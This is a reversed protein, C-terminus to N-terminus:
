ATPLKGIEHHFLLDLEHFNMNTVDVDGIKVLEWGVKIGIQKGHGEKESVVKIPVKAHSSLGLPKKTATVEHRAGTADKWTLTVGTAKKPPPAADRWLSTASATPDPMDEGNPGPLAGVENHLVHDVTDFSWKTIDVHNIAVLTWGVQIGIDKGHGDKEGTIKIPLENKYFQLGLPRETAYVTSLGSGTDFTLPLGEPETPAVQTPPALGMSKVGTSQLGVSADPQQPPPLALVHHHVQGAKPKIPQPAPAPATSEHWTSKKKAARRAATVIAPAASGPQLPQYPFSEGKKKNLMYIVGALCCLLLLFLLWMPFGAPTNISLVVECTTLGKAATATVVYKEDGIKHKKNLTGSIVGTKANIALAKPLDPKISFGSSTIKPKINVKDGPAINAEQYCGTTLTFKSETKGVGNKAVITYDHAGMTADKALVGQVECNTTDLKLGNPLAPDVTCSTPHEGALTPSLNVKKGPPFVVGATAYTLMGPPLEVSLTLLCPTEGASNVATIDYEQELRQQTKAITGKVEGTKTDFTLGTPLAPVIAFSTPKAGTVKPSLKVEDGPAFDGHKTYTCTGPPALISVTFSSKSEGAKNKATITYKTDGVKVDDKLTGEVKGTREDLKLGNPLAPDVSVSTPEEGDFEPMISVVEGPIYMDKVPYTFKGPPVEQPQLLVTEPKGPATNHEVPASKSSKEVLFSIESTAKGVPNSATITYKTKGGAKSDKPLEGSITGTKSDLTLGKPLEPDVTWTKPTGGKVEPELELHHGVAFQEGGLPYTISKPPVELLCPADVGDGCRKTMSDACCDEQGGEGKACDAMGCFEGCLPTCCAERVWDSMGYMGPHDIGSYKKCQHDRFVFALKTANLWCPAKKHEGCFGKMQGECCAESGGPGLWCDESGCFKGCTKPCCGKQNPHDIGDYSACLEDHFGDDRFGHFDDIEHAFKSFNVAHKLIKPTFLRRGHIQGSDHQPFGVWAVFTIVAVVMAISKGMIVARNSVTTAM